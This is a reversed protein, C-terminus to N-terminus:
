SQISSGASNTMYFGNEYGNDLLENKLLSCIKQIMDDMTIGETFATSNRLRVFDEPKLINEVLEVKLSM